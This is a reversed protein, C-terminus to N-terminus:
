VGNLEKTSLASQIEEEGKQKESLTLRRTEQENFRRSKAAEIASLLNKQEVPRMLSTEGLKKADIVAKLITDEVADSIERGCIDDVKALEDISVDDALLLKNPLYLCRHWIQKRSKEDPMPINLRRLRTELAKDFSKVFNTTCITLVPYNDLCSFLQNRLSNIAQESGSNNEPLRQSCISDAEEIHLLARDRQAAYFAAQLNQSGEGHFKSEIDAATVSLILLDLRKAIAHALATKGTGPKGDLIFGRRRVPKIVKYNLTEHVINLASISQVIFEIEEKVDAPFVLKEFDHLPLKSVYKFARKELTLEDDNSKDQHINNIAKKQVNSLTNNVSVEIDKIGTDDLFNNTATLIRSRYIAADTESVNSPIGNIFLERNKSLKM